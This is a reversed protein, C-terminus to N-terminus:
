DIPGTLYRQMTPATAAVLREIDASALPDFRAVYRVMGLGMLQSACLTARLQPRDSGIAGVLRTFVKKLLIERLM